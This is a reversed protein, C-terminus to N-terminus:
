CHIQVLFRPCIVDITINETINDEIYSVAEGISEIWGM